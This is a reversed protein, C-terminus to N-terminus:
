RRRGPRVSPREDTPPAPFEAFTARVRRSFALYGPIWVSVLLEVLRWGEIDAFHQVAPVAVVGLNVLASALLLWRGNRWLARDRPGAEPRRRVFAYVFAVAPLAAVAALAMAARHAYVLDIFEMRSAGRRVFSVVTVVYPRALFAAVFWTLLSPKLCFYRDYASLPWPPVDRKRDKRASM